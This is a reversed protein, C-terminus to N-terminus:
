REARVALWAALLIPPALILVYRLFLAAILPLVLLYYWCAGLLM